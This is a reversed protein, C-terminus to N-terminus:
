DSDDVMLASFKNTVAPPAAPEEEEGEERSGSEDSDEEEEANDEGGGSQPMDLQLLERVAKLDPHGEWREREMAYGQPELCFAIKGELAMRLIHNAARNLDARNSRATVYGRKLAWSECVDFASWGTSRKRGSDGTEAPHRIRLVSPLDVRELLYRVVSFPERVQSIPYSGMLVQLPKPVVSPFVLGPCDCLRVSGTVFITQFHKTHGPTKSVSVVRRGMMSNILSSKGANPQGVLGLTLIGNQFRTKTPIADEVPHSDSGEEAKVTDGGAGGVAAAGDDGSIRKRLAEQIKLEWSNLDVNAEAKDVIKRCEELVNGAGEAVMSIRGRLRRYKLGAEENGLAGRLNYNPCSSFFAVSLGPFSKELKDKWALALAAPILDVKNLVLVMDRRSDVVVSRYLSLPFMATPFRADVVLLLVDSMELVRWLQRWTELNLEFHSVSEHEAFVRNVYERFYKAEAAELSAKSTGPAWPPRRPFDMGDPFFEESAPSAPSVGGPEEVPMRAGERMKALEERTEVRFRLDYKLRGAGGGRGGRGGRRGGGASLAVAEVMDAARDRLVQEAPLQADQQELGVRDYSTAGRITERHPHEQAAEQGKRSRKEQMAARKQKGSFDKRRGQPMRVISQSEQECRVIM